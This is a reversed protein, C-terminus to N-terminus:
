NLDNSRNELVPNCIFMYQKYLLIHYVFVYQDNNFTSVFMEVVLVIMLAM